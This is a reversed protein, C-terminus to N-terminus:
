EEKIKNLYNDDKTLVKRVNRIESNYLIDDNFRSEGMKTILMDYIKPYDNRLIERGENCENEQCRNEFILAYEKNKVESDHEGDIRLKDLLTM